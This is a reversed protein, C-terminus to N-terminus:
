QVLKNRWSEDTVGEIDAFLGLAILPALAPLEAPIGDANAALLFRDDSTRLVDLLGHSSNRVARCLRAVLTDNDISELHDPAGRAIRAGSPTLRHSLTSERVHEYASCAPKARTSASGDLVVHEAEVPQV